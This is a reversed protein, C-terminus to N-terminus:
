IISRNYKKWKSITNRSLKFYSAIQTNNLKYKEQYSLIENITEKDYSKHKQNFILDEKRLQGFIIHELRIIDLACIIEKSLIIECKLLKDPHKKSILDKYIKKFNPQELKRNQIQQDM